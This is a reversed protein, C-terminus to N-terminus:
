FQIVNVFFFVVVNQLGRGGLNFCDKKERQLVTTIRDNRGTSRYLGCTWLRGTGSRRDEEARTPMRRGDSDMRRTTKDISYGGAANEAVPDTDNV